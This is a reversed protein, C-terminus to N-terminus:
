YVRTSYRTDRKLGTSSIESMSTYWIPHTDSDPRASEDTVVEDHFDIDNQGIPRKAKGMINSLSDLSHVDINDRLSVGLHM